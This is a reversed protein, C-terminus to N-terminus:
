SIGCGDTAINVCVLEIEPEKKSNHLFKELERDFARTANRVEAISAECKLEPASTNIMGFVAIVLM